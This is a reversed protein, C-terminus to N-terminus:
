KTDKFTLTVARNKQQATLLLPAVPNDAFNGGTSAQFTSTGDANEIWQVESDQSIEAREFGGVTIFETETHGAAEDLDFFTFDASPMRIPQGTEADLTSFTVNVSTGGM